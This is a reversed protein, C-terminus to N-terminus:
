QNILSHRPAQSEQALVTIGELINTAGFCGTIWRFEEVTRESGVKGIVTSRNHLPSIISVVLSWSNQVCEVPEQEVLILPLM